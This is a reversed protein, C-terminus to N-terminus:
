AIRPPSSAFFVVFVGIKAAFKGRCQLPLLYFTRMKSRSTTWWKWYVWVGHNNDHILYKGILWEFSVILQLKTELVTDKMKMHENGATEIGIRFGIEIWFSSHYEKLRPPTSGTTIISFILLKNRARWTYPSTKKTQPNCNTKFTSLHQILKAQKTLIHM